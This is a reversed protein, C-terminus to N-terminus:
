SGGASATIAYNGVPSTTTASTALAPTGTLAQGASDGNVLGSITSTYNATPYIESDFKKVQPDATVTLAKKLVDVSVTKTAIAYTNMDNPTFTVTLSQSLGANLVTGLSPYYSFSGPVSSSANM